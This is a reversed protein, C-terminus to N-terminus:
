LTAAQVTAMVLGTVFALVVTGMFNLQPSGGDVVATCFTPIKCVLGQVFQSSIVIYLIMFLLVTKAFEVVSFKSFWGAAATSENQEKLLLSAPDPMQGYKNDLELGKNTEQAYDRLDQQTEPQMVTNHVNPDMQRALAAEDSTTQQINSGLNNESSQMEQLIDKVLESDSANPNMGQQQMEQQPPANTVLNTNTPVTTTLQDLSTSRQTQSVTADMHISNVNHTYLSCYFSHPPMRLFDYVSFVRM